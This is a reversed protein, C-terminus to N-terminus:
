IYEKRIEIEVIDIINRVSYWRKHYKKIADVPDRGYITDIGRSGFSGEYTIRYIKKRYHNLFFFM